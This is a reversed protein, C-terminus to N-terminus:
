LSFMSIFRERFIALIFIHTAGQQCTIYTFLLNGKRQKKRWYLFCVGLILLAASLVAVLSALTIVVSASNDKDRAQKGGEPDRTPDVLHYFNSPIKKYPPKICTFGFRFDDKQGM